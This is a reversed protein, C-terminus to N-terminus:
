ADKRRIVVNCKALAQNLSKMFISDAPPMDCSHIEKKSGDAFIITVKNPVIAKTVAHIKQSYNAFEDFTCNVPPQYTLLDHSQGQVVFQINDADNNLKNGDIHHGNVQGKNRGFAWPGLADLLPAADDYVKSNHVLGNLNQIEISKKGISQKVEDFYSFIYKSRGDRNTDDKSLWRPAKGSLSIVDGTQKLVFWYIPFYKRRPTDAWAQTWIDSEHLELSEHHRNYIKTNNKIFNDFLKQYEAAIETKEKINEYNNIM